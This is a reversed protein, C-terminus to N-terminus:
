WGEEAVELVGGDLGFWLLWLGERVDEEWGRGCGGWWGMGDWGLQGVGGSGWEGWWVDMGDVVWGAMMMLCM